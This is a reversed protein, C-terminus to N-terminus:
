FNDLIGTWIILNNTDVGIFQGNKTIELGRLDVTDIDMSNDPLLRINEVHNGDTNVIYICQENALNIAITNDDIFDFGYFYTFLFVMNRSGGQKLAMEVRHNYLNTLNEIENGHISVETLLHGDQSYRQMVPRQVYIIVLEGRSNFRIMGRNYAYTADPTPVPNLDTGFSKTFGISDIVSGDTDYIFILPKDIQPQMLAIRGNSNVSFGSVRPGDYTFSSLYLGDSDFLSVRRLPTDLVYMIDNSDIRIQPFLFEGPGEGRQGIYKMFIGEPSFKVLRHQFIDVVFINGKSDRAISGPRAIIFDNSEITDRFIPTLIRVSEGTINKDGMYSCSAVSLTLLIIKLYIGTYGFISLLTIRKMMYQTIM